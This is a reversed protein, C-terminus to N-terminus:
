KFVSSLSGLWSASAKQGPPHTPSLSGQTSTLSGQTSHVSGSASPSGARSVSSAAEGTARAASGVGAGMLRFLVVVGIIAAIILFIFIFFTGSVGSAFAGIAKGIFDLPNETKTTSSQDVYGTITDFVKAQDLTSLTAAAFVKAGQNLDVTELLVIGSNSFTASQNQKIQNYNKQINQMTINTQIIRKLNAQATSTDKGFAGLLAVGQSTASQAIENYIQQQLDTQKKADSFCKNNIETQQTLSYGGFLKFGTNTVNLNQNQTSIVECSQVISSSINSINQSLENIVSSSATGGM